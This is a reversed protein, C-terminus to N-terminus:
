KLKYADHCLYHATLGQLMAAAADQGSGAAPVPGKSEALGVVYEAYSGLTGRWGGRDGVKVCKVGPGVATVVGAGEQGPVFPVPTKFVGQRFQADISNVEAAAVKVVAENAKPEPVPLDALQMVEPGGAREVRIAKM